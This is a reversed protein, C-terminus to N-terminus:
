RTLDDMMDEIADEARGAMRRGKRVARRCTRRDQMLCGVAVATVTGGLLLGEVFNKMRIGRKGTQIDKIHM